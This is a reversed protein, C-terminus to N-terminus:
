LGQLGARILNARGQVLYDRGLLKLMDAVLKRRSDGARPCLPPPAPFGSAQAFRVLDSEAVYFLPRILRFHGGFYDAAPALTRMTRTYLLNLLTTRAADDAHHAYAVVNCSLAEAAFFLAKRRLWTCRQCTLPLMEDATLEPEVIRYPIGSAALWAELPRHPATVGSADGRVHIAALEYPDRASSRRMQLLRLLSLSDKGGSVAVAVRDGPRIMGFERVVKNVAKLIFFALREVDNESDM